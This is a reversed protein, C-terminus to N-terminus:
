TSIVMQQVLGQLRCWCIMNWSPNYSFCMGFWTAVHYPPHQRGWVYHIYWNQDDGGVEFDYYVQHM